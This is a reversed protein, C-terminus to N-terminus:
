GGPEFDTSVSLERWAAHEKARAADNQEVGRLADSGLLLRLPPETLSAVHVVAAAAKAPDGPQRGNYDRQYRAMKGVTDDYEPRGERLTTSSGAFDTRFGGPEIITVKIGLPGVEKALVESFGEVGWKAAAYPARGAPGIRGGVSSFQIIHGFGQERMVPLAAKTVIITGFLNTEIQARFEALSTDEISGVDGYGANNVLVDLRGFRDVASKVASAASREDAVDLTATLVSDGFRKKLDELQSPDRATAVLKHGAALVGEALARGLGRSSGTILWVQSM